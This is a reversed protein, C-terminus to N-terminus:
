PLPDSVLKSASTRTGSWLFKTSSSVFALVTTEGKSYKVNEVQKFLKFHLLVQNVMADSQKGTGDIILITSIHIM